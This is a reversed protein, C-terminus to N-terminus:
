AKPKWNKVDIIMHRRVFRYEIPIGENENLDEFAEDANKIELDIADKWYMTNTCADIALAEQVSRPLQVGFEHTCLTYRKHVAAIIM